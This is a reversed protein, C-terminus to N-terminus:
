DKIGKRLVKARKCDPRWTTGYVTIAEYRDSM